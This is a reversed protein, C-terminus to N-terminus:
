GFHRIKLIQYINNLQVFGYLIIGGILIIEVFFGLFPNIILSPFLFPILYPISMLFGVLLIMGLRVAIHILLGRELVWRMAPNREASIGCNKTIYHTTLFDLIILGSLILLLLSDMDM